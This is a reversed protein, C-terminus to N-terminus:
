NSGPGGTTRAILLMIVDPATGKEYLQSDPDVALFIARVTRRDALRIATWSPRYGGSVMKRVWILRLEEEPKELSLRPATGECSDGPELALM